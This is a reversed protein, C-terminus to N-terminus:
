HNATTVPLAELTLHQEFRAHGNRHRDRQPRRAVQEVDAVPDPDVDRRRVPRAEVDVRVRALRHPPVRVLDNGLLRDADVRLPRGTDHQRHDGARRSTEPPTFQRGAPRREDIEHGAAGSLGSDFDFVPALLGM